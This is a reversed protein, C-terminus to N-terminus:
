KTLYDNEEAIKDRYECALKFANEKGGYKKVAFSKKILKKTKKCYCYAMYRESVAGNKTITNEYSVGIKGTTNNSMKHLNKNNLSVPVERLNSKRNDLTDGNIHDVVNKNSKDMNLIFRHLRIGKRKVAYHGSAEGFKALSWKGEKYVRDFDELDIKIEHYGYAKSDCILFVVQGEIRYENYQKKFPM